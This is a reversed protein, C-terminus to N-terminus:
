ALGRVKCYNYARQYDHALGPCVSSIIDRNNECWNRANEGYGSNLNREAEQEKYFKNRDAAITSSDGGFAGGQNRQVNGTQYDFEYGNASSNGEIENLIKHVSEKVIRHLDNETLRILKKM